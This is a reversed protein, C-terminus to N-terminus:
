LSSFDRSFSNSFTTKEMFYRFDREHRVGFGVGACFIYVRLEFSITPLIMKYHTFVGKCITPLEDTGFSLLFIRVIEQLIISDIEGNDLCLFVIEVRGLSEFLHFFISFDKSDSVEIRGITLPDIFEIEFSSSSLIDFFIWAWLLEVQSSEAFSVVGSFDELSFWVIYRAFSGSVILFDGDRFYHLRDCILFFSYQEGERGSSSLGYYCELDGVLEEHSAPRTITDSFTSGTDEDEGIAIDEYILRHICEIRKLFIDELDISIEDLFLSADDRRIRIDEESDILCEDPSRTFLIRVFDEFGVVIAIIRIEEIEDDDILTVTSSRSLIPVPCLNESIESTCYMESESGSRLSIIIDIGIVVEAFGDVLVRECLPISSPNRVGNLILRILSLISSSARVLPSLTTWHVTFFGTYVVVSKSFFIMTSSRVSIMASVIRFFILGRSFVMTNQTSWDCASRM